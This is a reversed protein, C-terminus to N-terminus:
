LLEALIKDWLPIGKKTLQLTNNREQLFNNEVYYAKKKIDLYKWNKKLIGSTRLEFMLTEMQVDEPTLIEEFVIKGVYYDRFNEPQAWRRKKSYSHSWLWFGIIESHNWYWQNHICEYGSKAFNSLEYRAFWKEALFQVINEYEDSFQDESLWANQWDSPYTVSQFGDGSSEFYDELMYVSIHKIKSYKQIIEAINEQLEWSSVWPLGLIFDVSVNEIDGKQLVDLASFIHGKNSRGIKELTSESLTQIGMSIRNIGMNKWDSLYSATVNQPTTELTIEPTNDYPFSNRVATLITKLQRSSLISPTWGGFYISTLFGSYEPNKYQQIEHNLHAIYKEVLFISTNGV